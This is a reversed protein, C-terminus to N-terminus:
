RHLSQWTFNSRKSEKRGIKRCLVVFPRILQFLPVLGAWIREGLVRAAAGFVCSVLVWYLVFLLVAVALAIISYLAGAIAQSILLSVVAVFVAWFLIHVVSESAWVGRSSTRLYQSTFGYRTRLEEWDANVNEHVADVISEQSIEVRTNRSDSLENVLLDDDGYHLNLTASFGKNAFFADKRYALNGGMGMYPKKMVAYVLYRLGFLMRDYASMDRPAVGDKNIMRTYGLVVDVGPVFNRAMNYLWKDSQPMCYAETVVVVDNKAAKVGLTIGLKKRSVNYVKDPVATQYVNKHECEYMAIANQGEFSVGDNVVIIEFQPYQQALLRPLLEVVADAEDAYAYVVVSVSPLDSVYKVGGKEARAAYRSLRNYVAFLYVLEVAFLFILLLLLILQLSTFGWITFSFM